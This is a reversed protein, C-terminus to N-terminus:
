GTVDVGGGGKGWTELLVAPSVFIANQVHAYAFMDFTKGRLRLLIRKKREQTTRQSTSRQALILSPSFPVCYLVTHM